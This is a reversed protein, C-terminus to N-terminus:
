KRRIEEVLKLTEDITQLTTEADDPFQCKQAVAHTKWKEESVGDEGDMQQFEIGAKKFNEHVFFQLNKDRYGWIGDQLFLVAFVSFMVLMAVARWLFWKTPKCIPADQSGAQPQVQPNEATNSDTSDSM